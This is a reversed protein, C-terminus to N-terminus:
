ASFREAITRAPVGAVVTYAPVDKTVVAGSGIVAGAGVNVGDLITVGAGIWVDNGITIGRESIGQDVIRIDRREFLRNHAVVDVHPGIRVFDGIVVDKKKTSIISFQGLACHRGMIVRGGSTIIIAYEKITTGPGFSVASSLQVAATPNILCRYRVM